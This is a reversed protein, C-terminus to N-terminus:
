TQEFHMHMNLYNIADTGSNFKTRYQVNGISIPVIVAIYKGFDELEIVEDNKQFIIHNPNSKIQIWGNNASNINLTNINERSLM